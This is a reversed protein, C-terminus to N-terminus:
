FCPAGPMAVREAQREVRLTHQPFDLHPRAAAILKVDDLRAPIITPRDDRVADIVIAHGDGLVGRAGFKFFGGKGPRGHDRGAPQAEILAIEKRCPASRGKDRPKRALREDAEAEISLAAGGFGFSPIHAVAYAVNGDGRLTTRDGGKTQAPKGSLPNPIILPGPKGGKRYHDIWEGATRITEGLIGEGYREGIFVLDTPKYLTELILIADNM